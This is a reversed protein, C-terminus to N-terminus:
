KCHYRRVHDSLCHSTSCVKGIHTEIHQRMNRKVLGWDKGKATKGCVKWTYKIGGDEAKIMMSNLQAKLDEKNTDLPALFKSTIM